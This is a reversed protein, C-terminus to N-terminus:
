INLYVEFLDLVATDGAINVKGYINFYYVYHVVTPTALKSYKCLNPSDFIEEKDKIETITGNNAVIEYKITAAADKIRSSIFISSGLDLFYTFPIPIETLKTYSTSNFPINCYEAIIKKRDVFAIDKFDLSSEKIGINGTGSNVKGFINVILKKNNTFNGLTSLDININGKSTESYTGLDLTITSSEDTAELKLSGICNEIIVNFSYVGSKLDIMSPDIFSYGTYLLTYETSPTNSLESTKFINQTRLSSGEVAYKLGNWPTVGDGIKIKKTDSEIGLEGLALIVNNAEWNSKTNIKNQITGTIPGTSLLSTVTTEKLEAM